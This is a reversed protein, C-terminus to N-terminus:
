VGRRKTIAEQQNILMEIRGSARRMGPRLLHEYHAVPICEFSNEDVTLPKETVDGLITAMTPEGTGYGIDYYEFVRTATIRASTTPDRMEVVYDNAIAGYKAEAKDVPVYKM